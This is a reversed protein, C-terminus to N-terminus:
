YASQRHTSSHAITATATTATAVHPTRVCISSLIDWLPFLHYLITVSKPMVLLTMLPTLESIILNVFNTAFNKVIDTKNQMM